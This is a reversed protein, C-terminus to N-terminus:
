SRWSRVPGSDLHVFNQSTYVGVGGARLWLGFSALRRTDMGPLTFDVAKGEIHPGGRVGGETMYDNTIVHRFGSTVELPSEVGFAALWASYAYLQDLVRPDIPVQFDLRDRRAIGLDLARAILPHRASLMREFRVDRLLWSIQRHAEELLRGDRWYVLRLREGTASRRLWVWRPREWFGSQLDGGSQEAGAARARAAPVGLLVSGTLVLARRRPLSKADFVHNM